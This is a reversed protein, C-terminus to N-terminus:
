CQNITVDGTTISGTMDVNNSSTERKTSKKATVDRLIELITQQTEESLESLLKRLYAREIQRRTGDDVDVGKYPEGDGDLLWDVNVNFKDAVVYLRAKGPRTQGTEWMSVVVASKIGVEAAFSSQDLGADIRVKKIRDSLTM